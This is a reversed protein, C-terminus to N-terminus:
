RSAPVEVSLEGPKSMDDMLVHGSLFSLPSYADTRDIIRRCLYHPSDRIDKSLEPHSTLVKSRSSVDFRFTQKNTSAREKIGGAVADTIRKM